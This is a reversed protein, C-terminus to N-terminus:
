DKTSFTPAITPLPNSDKPVHTVLLSALTTPIPSATRCAIDLFCIHGPSHHPSSSGNAHSRLIPNRNALSASLPSSAAAVSSTFLIASNWTPPVSSTNGGVSLKLRAQLSNSVAYSVVSVNDHPPPRSTTKHTPWSQTQATM